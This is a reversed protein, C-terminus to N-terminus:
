GNGLEMRYAIYEPEWGYKGLWRKWAKRGYGELHSCGCEKAYEKLTKQAMPLWEGMRSGGLWDMALAKRSPYQIIRTTIAAIVNMGEKEDDIILWLGYMGSEVDKYVDDIHFKGKSTEVSKNLVRAVDGWVVRLAERPVATIMM